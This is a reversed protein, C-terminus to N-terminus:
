RLFRTVREEPADGATSVREAEPTRDPREYPRGNM